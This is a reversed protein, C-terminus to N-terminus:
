GASNRAILRFVAPFEGKWRSASGGAALLLEVMAWLVPRVPRGAALDAHFDDMVWHMADQRQADVANADARRGHLLWRVGYVFHTRAAAVLPPMPATAPDLWANVDRGEPRDVPARDPGVNLLAYIYAKSFPTTRLAAVQDFIYQHKLRLWVFPNAGHSLLIAIGEYYELAIAQELWLDRLAEVESFNADHLLVTSGNIRSRCGHANSALLADIRQARTQPDRYAPYTEASHGILATLEADAFVHPASM